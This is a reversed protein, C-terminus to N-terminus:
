TFFVAVMIYDIDHSWFRETDVGPIIRQLMRSRDAVHMKGTFGPIKHVRTLFCAYQLASCCM